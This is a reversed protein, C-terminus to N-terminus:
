AKPCFSETSTQSPPKASQVDSAVPVRESREKPLSPEPPHQAADKNSAKVEEYIEERMVRIHPLADVGLKVQRGRIEKVEVVVKEGGSLIIIIRQGPRRALSLM